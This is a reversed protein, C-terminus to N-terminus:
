GFGFNKKIEVFCIIEPKLQCIRKLIKSEFALFVGNLNRIWRKAFDVKCINLKIYPSLAITAELLHRRCIGFYLPCVSQSVNKYM